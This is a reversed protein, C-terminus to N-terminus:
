SVQGGASKTCVGIPFAPVVAILPGRRADLTQRRGVPPEDELPRFGQGEVGFTWGSRYRPILLRDVVPTM